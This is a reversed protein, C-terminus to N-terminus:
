RGVVGLITQFLSDATSILKAAAQYAEQYRLLNAAEEDLNVGSVEQQAAEAQSLLEKEADNNVEARRTVVGINAVTQGHAEQFTASGGALLSAGQLNVFELMNRNDGKGETNYGVSFSDGPRPIGSLTVRYGYDINGIPFVPSDRSPDYQIGKIPVPNNPNTDDSILVPNMPDTNNYISYTLGGNDLPPDDFRILLPPTLAGTSSFAQNTTDVVQEVTLKGSGINGANAYSRVPTAAAIRSPDSMAVTLQGSAARTPRVLFTDGPKGASNSESTLTFTMGDVPPYFSLSVRGDENIKSSLGLTTTVGNSLNKISYGSGSVTIQYDNATLASADTIEAHIKLDSENKNSSFVEPTVPAFLDVGLLGNLDMGLHHQKNLELALGAAVRGLGNEAPELVERRFQLLGGLTGGTILGSVIVPLGGQPPVIKGHSAPSNPNNVVNASQGLAVESQRPDYPNEVVSLYRVQSGTVLTQGNGIFLNFTGDGQKFVQVGIKEAMQRVAEDRSDMLDNPLANSTVGRAISVHIDHNFKAVSSALNNIEDVNTKLQSNVYQDLESLRSSQINFRKALSVANSLMDQRASFSTPDDAVGQTAKFFDDIAPSVGAMPDALLNDVKSAMDYLSQTQNQRGTIERLNTTLFDDYNRRIQAVNVGNGSYQGQRLSTPQTVLEVMQRSYGPTNVNAVNHGTTNLSRGTAFLATTSVNFLDYM